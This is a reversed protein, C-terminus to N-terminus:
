NKGHGKYEEDLIQVINEISDKLNRSTVTVVTSNTISVVKDMGEECIVPDTRCAVITHIDLSFSIPSTGASVTKKVEQNSQISAFDISAYLTDNFDCDSMNKITLTTKKTNNGNGKNNSNGGNDGDTPCATLILALIVALTCFKKM